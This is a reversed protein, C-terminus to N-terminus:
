QVQVADVLRALNTGLSQIAPEQGVYTDRRIEIMISTVRPDTGYFDLPVYTGAFPENVVTDSISAFSSLAAQVLWDPTHFPDTGLCLEPRRADPHHLREYPLEEAPFSHIDIITVRDHTRLVHGVVDSLGLAYPHFYTELLAAEHEADVSRLVDLHATKSYVAGMGIEPSAMPEQGPDPFREPDVVLRSLANRFVWPRVGASEAAVEAILDTEADTMLELERELAADDLLIKSRVWSPIVTSSHPVHLVVCSSDAGAEVVFGASPDSKAV